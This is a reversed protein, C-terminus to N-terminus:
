EMLRSIDYTRLDVSEEEQEYDEKKATTPSRLADMVSENGKAVSMYSEEVNKKNRLAPVVQSEHEQFVNNPSVNRNIAPTKPIREETELRNERNTNFNSRNQQIQNARSFTLANANSDM